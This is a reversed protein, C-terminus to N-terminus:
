KLAPKMKELFDHAIKAGAFEAPGADEAIVAFAIRPSEVPAFAMILAELGSKREGATGTKMAMSIGEVPARRGTGRPDSAVAQMAHIVRQAADDSAIRVASPAPMKMVVDGVISRTRRLLRPTAYMGRNAVMSALMALHLTNISEHQLGIALFATEFNNFIEGTIRGLPADFVGLKATGNFGAATMFRELGERKLRIGVDAFFVNCSVALADDLSKLTGHGQPMWDGFHRGDIMLEGKCTYPFMSNVDIGNTIANLGTLVKIVSGPEYQREIALDDTTNSSAIALIENTRPDIAVLSGRYKGLAALAAQQVLPDLTTEITDNTSLKPLMVVIGNGARDLVPPVQGNVVRKLWQYHPDNSPPLAAFAERHGAAVEAAARYLAAEPNRNRDVFADDYARFDAYQERAFLRRAVDAKDIASFWLRKPQLYPAAAARNGTSLHTAALIQAYQNSWLHLQSWRNAIAIAQADRGSNWAERAQRLPLWAVFILLILLIGLPIFLPAVFRRFRHRRPAATAM